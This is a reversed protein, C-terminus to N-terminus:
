QNVYAEIENIQEDDGYNTVQYRIGDAVNSNAFYDLDHMIRHAFLIGNTDRKDIARKLSLITNEADKIIQEDMEVEVISEIDEILSELLTENQNWSFGRYRNWGVLRNLEAHVRTIIQNTGRIENNNSESEDREEAQVTITEIAEEKDEKSEEAKMNENEPLLNVGIVIMFMIM